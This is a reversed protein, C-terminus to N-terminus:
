SVAPEESSGWSKSFFRLSDMSDNVIIFVVVLAYEPEVEEQPIAPITDIDIISKWGYSRAISKLSDKSM